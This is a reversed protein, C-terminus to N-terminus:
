QWNDFWDQTSRFLEARHFINCTERLHNISLQIQYIDMNKKLLDLSMEALLLYQNLIYKFILNDTDILYNM